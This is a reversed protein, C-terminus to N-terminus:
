QFKNRHTIDELKRKPVHLVGRDDTWREVSGTAEEMVPSEAPFGLMIGLAIEYKDPMNLVQKLREQQFSAIACSGLGEEQATLMINEAAIGVDYNTWRRSGKLETERQGNILIIIYARPPHELSWGGEPRPVGSWSGVTDLVQPLLKEDDVVIYECVQLNRASPALRAANVCKELSDYPVPTDKFERISRRSVVAQHVDM